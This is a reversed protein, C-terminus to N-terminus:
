IEVVIVAESPCYSICTLCGLCEEPDGSVVAQGSEMALIEAPCNEVCQCCGLCKDQKIQVRYM